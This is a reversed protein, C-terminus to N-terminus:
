QVVGHVSNFGIEKGELLDRLLYDVAGKPHFEQRITNQTIYFDFEFSKILIKPLAPNNTHFYWPCEFSYSIHSKVNPQDKLHPKRAEEVFAILSKEEKEDNYLIVDAARRSNQFDRITDESGGNSLIWDKDVNVKLNETHSTNMLFNIYLHNMTQMEDITVLKVGNFCAYELAGSQFGSKSVYIGNPFGPIDSLKEKFSMIEEKKVKTKWDKVEVITKYLINGLKFEWYIDIQHKLGSKGELLVNHQVEIRKYGNNEYDLLWQYVQQTLLEYSKGTNKEM